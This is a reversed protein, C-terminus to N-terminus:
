RKRQLPPGITPQPTPRPGISPPEPTGFGGNRYVVHGGVMTLLVEIDAIHEPAVTTPDASLVVLDAFMGPALAGKQKEMGEGAASGVTYATLAEIATVREQTGFGGHTVALQVSALPALPRPPTHQGIYDTGICVRVGAALLTHLPFARESRWEPLMAPNPCVIVGLAALREAEQKTVEDAHDVRFLRILALDGHAMREIADLFTQLSHSSLVHMVIRRGARAQADFLRELGYRGIRAWDDHYYKVGDVRVWEPAPGTWDSHYIDTAFRYGFPIMRVRATLEGQRRLREFLEPLEDMLQVSTIGLRGLEGLFDRAWSEVLRAPLAKVLRDLAVAALRGRVFGHPAESETLGSLKWGRSNFLVGHRTVVVLPRQIFDLQTAREFGPLENTTVYLWGSDDRAPHERAAKLLEAVWQKRGAEPLFVGSPGGITQSMGFHVHADNFGPIVTRGGLDIEHAGAGAARRAADLDDGVYALKGDVVALATATPQAPSLTLAHAHALVVAVVALM